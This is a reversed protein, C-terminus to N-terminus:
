QAAVRDQPGCTYRTVTGPSVTYNTSAPDYTTPIWGSKTQTGTLACTPNWTATYALNKYTGLEEQHFDKLCDPAYVPIVTGAVETKWYAQTAVAGLTEPDNPDWVKLVYSKAIGTAAWAEAEACECSLCNAPIGRAPWPLVAVVLLVWVGCLGVRRKM